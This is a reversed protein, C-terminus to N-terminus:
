PKLSNVHGVIGRALSLLSNRLGPSGVEVYAQLMEMAGPIALQELVVADLPTESDEGLIAAVTTDLFRAVRVLNSGAVRNSGREYKQIQQFSVGIAEGLSSQSHGMAKRRLRIRQGIERDIPDIEPDDNRSASPETVAPDLGKLPPM